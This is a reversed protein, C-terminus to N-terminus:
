KRRSRHREVIEKMLKHITLGEPHRLYAVKWWNCWELDSEKYEIPIFGIEKEGLYCVYCSAFERKEKRWNYETDNDDEMYDWLSAPQWTM